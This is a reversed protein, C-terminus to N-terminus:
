VLPMFSAEAVGTMFDSTVWKPQHDALWVLAKKEAASLLSTQIRTAQKVEAM